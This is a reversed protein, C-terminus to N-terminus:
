VAVPPMDGTKFSQLTQLVGEKCNGGPGIQITTSTVTLTGDIKCIIQILYIVM